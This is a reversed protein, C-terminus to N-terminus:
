VPLRNAIGDLKANLDRTAFETNQLAQAVTVTSHGLPTGLLERANDVDSPVNLKAVVADAIRNVDATNMFVGWYTTDNEQATTYRASFHAHDFHASAGTYTHWGWGWSRSAIRGQWIINQLRDDDGNMHNIRIESVYDGLDLGSGLDKDVDLAHVEDINDADEYPTRGTEDPNHDSSEQQHAKDGIWGDAGKDRHPALSNFEARLAVLCPVLIPANMM